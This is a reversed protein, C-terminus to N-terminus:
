VRRFRRGALLLGLGFLALLSPEAAGESRIDVSTTFYLSAQSDPDVQRLFFGSTPALDSITFRVLASQGAALSFLWGLAVSVDDESGVPVANTNDLTGAVFNDYIDGFTYGPEDIEWSLNAPPTGAAEGFENFFTNIAEDIEYDLFGLASHAGVGTVVLSLTGLGNVLGSTDGATITGDVNFAVEYPDFTAAHASTALHGTFVLALAVRCFTKM